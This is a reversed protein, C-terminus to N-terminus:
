VYFESNLRMDAPTNFGPERGIFKLFSEVKKRIRAKIVGDHALSGTAFDVLPILLAPARDAEPYDFEIWMMPIKIGQPIDADAKPDFQSGYGFTYKRAHEIEGIDHLVDRALDETRKVFDPKGRIRDM